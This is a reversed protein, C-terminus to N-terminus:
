QHVTKAPLEKLVDAKRRRLQVQGHRARLEPGPRMPAVRQGQENPQLFELLSALDDLSNELPTGTLAWSRRRPIMKCASSVEAERNKIKQAEDLVVVDWVRRRPGCAPHPSFDSRLTEYSTLFVHAPDRWRSARQEPSGRITSVRMEPAWRGLEGRWQYILGAPVVVLASEAEGRRLLIRLATIAQITKGLGMDDALLVEPQTLLVGVGSCQFPHLEGPWDLVSGTVPLLKAVPVALVARLREVLGSTSRRGDPPSVAPRVSSRGGTTRVRAAPRRSPAPGGHEALPVAVAEGLHLAVVTTGVPALDAASPIAASAPGVMPGAVLRSDGPVLRPAPIRM